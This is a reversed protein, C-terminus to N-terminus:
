RIACSAGPMGSHRFYADLASGLRVLDDASLLKQLEEFLQREEKRIHASLSEVFSQLEAMTLARKAAADAYKRLLGHEVRLEDVLPGLSGAREATPFLVMEESEFHYRIEDRFLREVESQWHDLEPKGSKLARDIQVCLALAHQHQHSLPILSKDRLM